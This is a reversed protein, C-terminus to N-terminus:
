RQERTHWLQLISLTEGHVAYRLEYDGIMIRRVEFASILDGRQGLRPMSRLRQPAARLDRVVRRAAAPNDWKLFAYLREIDQLAQDTWVVIM